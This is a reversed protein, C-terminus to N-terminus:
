VNCVIILLCELKTRGNIIITMKFNLKTKGIPYSDIKEKEMQIITLKTMNTKGNLYNDIKLGLM